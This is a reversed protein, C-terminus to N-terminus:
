ARELGHNPIKRFLGAKRALNQFPGSGCERVWTAMIHTFHPLRAIRNEVGLVFDGRTTRLCRGNVAHNPRRVM